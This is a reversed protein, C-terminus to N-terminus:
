RRRKNLGLYIFYFGFAAIIGGVIYREDGLVASRMVGTHIINIGRLCLLLGIVLSGISFAPIKM